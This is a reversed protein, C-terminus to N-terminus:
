TAIAVVLLKFPWGYGVLFVEVAVYSILPLVIVLALKIFIYYNVAEVRFYGARVLDQRLKDRVTGEVGFRKEDFYTSVLAHVNELLAPSGGSPKGYAAVRRELEMQSSFFQGLVFVLSAVAGFALLGIVWPELEAM